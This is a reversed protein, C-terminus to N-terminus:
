AHEVARRLVQPAVAIDDRPGDDGRLLGQEVADPERVLHQPRREPGELREEDPPSELREGEPHLGLARAGLSEGLEQLGLPGGDADDMVGAQGGEGLVRESPLLHRTEARHEAELQFSAESRFLTTYPFLTSRPPRRIM